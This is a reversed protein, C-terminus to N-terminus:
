TYKKMEKVEGYMDFKPQRGYRPEPLRLTNQYIDSVVESWVERWMFVGGGPGGKDLSFGWKDVFARTDFGERHNLYEQPNLDLKAGGPNQLLLITYRHYPTGRQPHPPIYNTQPRPPIPLPDTFTSSLPINPHIWHLLTKYSQTEEDPYDPDLMLLTYFREEPHFVTTYLVPPQRTQEPLLFSGAEVALKRRKVRSRLFTSRPPPEDFLVRLDITPHIAPLLDPVVSMQYVREMVLDLAGDERWKKEALHRYVPKSLDWQGNVFNWRTKPLNVQSQIDLVEEKKRLGDVEDAKAEAIKARIGRLENKLRRSDQAIVRLAEDYVHSKGRPIARPLALIRPM